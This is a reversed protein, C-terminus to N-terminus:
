TNTTDIQQYWVSWKKWSLLFCWHTRCLSWFYALFVDIIRVWMEASVACSLAPEQEPNWLIFGCHKNFREWKFKNIYFIDYLFKNVTNNVLQSPIIHWHYSKPVEPMEFKTEQLRKWWVSPVRRCHQYMSHYPVYPCLSALLPDQKLAIFMMMMMVKAHQLLCPLLNQSDSIQSLVKLSPAIKGKKVSGIALHLDAILLKAIHPFHLRAHIM